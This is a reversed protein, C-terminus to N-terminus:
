KNIEFKTVVEVPSFSVEVGKIVRALNIDRGDEGKAVVALEAEVEDKNFPGKLETMRDWHSDIFIFYEKPEM